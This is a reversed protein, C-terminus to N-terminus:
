KVIALFEDDTFLKAFEIDRKARNALSADKAVAAKLNSFVDDRDHTRAGVIAKMYSTIATPSQIGNLTTTAKNYDKKLIQALAAVNSSRGEVTTAAAAVPTL